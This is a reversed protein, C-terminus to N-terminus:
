VEIQNTSLQGTEKVNGSLWDTIIQKFYALRSRDDKVFHKFKDDIIDLLDEKKLKQLPQGNVVYAISLTPKPLGDKGIDGVYDTIPLYFQNLYNVIDSVQSSNVILSEKLYKNILEQEQTKNILFKKRM